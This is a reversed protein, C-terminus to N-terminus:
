QPPPPPYYPSPAYGPPVAYVPPASQPVPTMTARRQGGYAQPLQNGKAYMCQEYAIDYRRQLDNADRGGQSVGVATGALVGFGATQGVPNHRGGMAAGAAAGVLGGVVASGVIDQGSAQSPTIGISQQAYNRCMGDESRFQEFSKGPPPMVAVQPGTPVAACGALILVSMALPLSRRSFHFTKM